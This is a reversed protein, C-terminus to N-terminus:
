FIHLLLGVIKVVSTTTLDGEGVDEKIAQDIFNILLGDDDFRSSENEFALFGKMSIQGAFNSRSSCNVILQFFSLM